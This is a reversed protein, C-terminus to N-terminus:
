HQHYSVNAVDKSWCARCSRCEGGQTPAPCLHGHHDDTSSVTSTYPFSKLPKGNVMAGSVRVILNNPFTKGSDLFRKIIAKEKTPIWHKVDPTLEAVKVIRKFHAMNQIDGADHWRFVEQGTILKVMADVWFESTLAELRRYQAKKVEPYMTYCGKMAYCSECVSGAVKRLKSGTKCEWAPLGLSFGPMKSPKSLGGVILLAEKKTNIM